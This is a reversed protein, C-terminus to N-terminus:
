IIDVFFVPIHKGTKKQDVSYFSLIKLYAFLSFLTMILKSIGPSFLTQKHFLIRLLYFNKLHIITM